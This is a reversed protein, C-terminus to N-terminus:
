GGQQDPPVLGHAILFERAVAAPDQHSLEVAANLQRMVPLTLLGSVKNITAAFAPGEAQLLKASAVPVVNGWGFVHRPDRLVRYVGTLLQADTSNVDAAQVTGEDLAQYQGGVELAKFSAPLFGYAQEILPLGAPDQQFQPPAGLTLTSAVRRLDALTKLRHENAYNFTVGIEDTDSFPTPDLLELGHALAYRRGAQYARSASPFENRYRAVTTNWTQLYEPYMALRGSQLAPITVETPGINRNLMVKFGQASLAQYYLEGLVFQETLNKDGITVLPRGTGPLASKRAARSPSDTSGTQGSGGGCGALALGALLAGAGLGILRRLPSHPAPALCRPRSVV